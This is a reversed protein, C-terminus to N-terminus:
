VGAEYLLYQVLQKLDREEDSTLNYREEEPLTFIYEYQKGESRYRGDFTYLRNLELEFSIVHNPLHIKDPEKCFEVRDCLTKTNKLINHWLRKPEYSKDNYYVEFRFDDINSCGVRCVNPYMSPGRPFLVVCVFKYGCEKVVERLSYCFNCYTSGYFSGRWSITKNYKYLQNVVALAESLRKFKADFVETHNAYDKKRTRQILCNIRNTIDKEKM